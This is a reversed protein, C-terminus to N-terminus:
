RAARMAAKLEELQEDRRAGLEDMRRPADLADIKREIAAVQGEVDLKDLRREVEAIKGEVDFSRLEAEVEAVKRDADHEEIRREVAAIRAEADYDRIEQEIRAIEEEHRKIVAEISAREAETARYLRSAHLGSIAGRESSIRGRLSSVHGRISSIEGRMSSEQGRISSIRGRLSSVHGRLSSIEGLYSSRQGHISSIQGRLSSVEGHLMSLEWTTDLVALMRDRWREAAADIPRERGNVSWSVGSGRRAELRQVLGPLHAEMVYNPSEEIWRSPKGPSGGEVFDTTVFCLRLDGFRKQVIPSGDQIGVREYTITRGDVDSTSMNGHFTGGPYVDWCSDVVDTRDAPTAEVRPAPPVPAASPVPALASVTQELRPAEVLIAAKAPKAIIPAIARAAPEAAAIVATLCVFVLLPILALRRSSPRSEKLITMLRIELFSRQVMPLAALIRPRPQLTDALDLLVQAYLSPRTGLALVAADCAEERAAGAYRAAIWTLPHFWYLAVTLRTLLLRLPDRSAMHSIEHALVVDRQEASWDLSSSPLFVTPRWLGGAMPTAVSESVLLRIPRHFGLRAAITEAADNWAADRMERAVAALRRVRWLSLLLTAIALVTGVVWIMLLLPVARNEDASPAAQRRERQPPPQFAAADAVPVAANVVSVITAPEEDLSPMPLSMPLVLAPLVLVFAPLLLLGAFAVSWYRHRTAAPANRLMAGGVLAVLLVATAKLLLTADM